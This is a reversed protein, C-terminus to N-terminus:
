QADGQRLLEALYRDVDAKSWVIAVPHGLDNLQQHVRLQIKSVDGKPQKVEVFRAPLGPLLVLRDPLGKRVPIIKECWGGYHKVRERLYREVTTERM